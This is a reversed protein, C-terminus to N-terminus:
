RGRYPRGEKEPVISWVEGTYGCLPLVHHEDAWPYTDLPLYEDGESGVVQM